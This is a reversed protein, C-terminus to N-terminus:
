GANVGNVPAVANDGNLHVTDAQPYQQVVSQTPRLGVEQEQLAADGQIQWSDGDVQDLLPATNQDHDIGLDNMDGGIGAYLANVAPQAEGTLAAFGRPTITWYDDPIEIVPM